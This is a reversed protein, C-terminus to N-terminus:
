RRRARNKLFTIVPRPKAVPIPAIGGVTGEISQGRLSARILAMAHPPDEVGFIPAGVVFVDAGAMRVANLNDLALCGDAQIMFTLGTREREAKASRIRDLMEPLFAPGDYEAGTTMVNLVDLEALHRRASEFPTAPDLALGARMGLDRIRRLLTVPQECTQPHFTVLSAGARALDEVLREPRSALLHVDFFASSQSRAAALVPAGFTLRPVFCGDAVDFHIWDYDPDALSLSKGLYALNSSLISASVIPPEFAM